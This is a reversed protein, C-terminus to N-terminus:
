ATVNWPLVGEAERCFREHAERLPLEGMALTRFKEAWPMLAQAFARMRREDSQRLSRMEADMAAAIPDENLPVGALAPRLEALQRALDPRVRLLEVLREADLMTKVQEVEDDLQLALAGVFAYDKLRMTQKLRVLDARPVVAQSGHDVDQWMAALREPSIRPPRSVFDFRCRLGDASFGEFHSSWGAALWRLDLPAGLRYRAGIRELQDMVVDLADQEERVIWDGDKSALTLRYWVCAQGSALIVVCRKANCLDTFAFYPNAEHHGLPPPRSTM